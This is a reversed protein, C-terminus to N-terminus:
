AVSATWRVSRVKIHVGERRELCGIIDFLNLAQPNDNQGVMRLLSEPARDM